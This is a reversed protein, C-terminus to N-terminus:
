DAAGLDALARARDWYLIFRTVRGDRVHLVNAGARKGEEGIQGVDLGSTKGRGCHLMLVLIREGDLQRYEDVEVRYEEWAELWDQWAQAMKAIGTWSGAEPGDAAVFEIEPHAWDTSSFDGREWPEYISRALELNLLGAAALAQQRDDYGVIKVVQGDRVTCVQALRRSVEIGSARGRGRSTLFVVVEEGADFLQEVDVTFDDLAEAMERWQALVGERGRYSRAGPLDPADHWEVEPAMLEVSEGWAARSFAGIGRRVIEVNQHSM